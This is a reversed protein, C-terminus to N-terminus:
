QRMLKRFADDPEQKLKKRLGNRYIDFYRMASIRDNNLLLAEILLYNMERHLPEHTLGTKMWKIIKEHRCVAKYYGSIRLLLSIYMDKLMQRSREAWVYERGSFYEGKYLGAAEEYKWVSDENVILPSESLTHFKCYDCDLGSMDFRYSGRDHEIPLKVGHQLLAKKVYHLTTNFHILARDGEYDEWLCDIIKNRSVFRGEQDVLFAFLEEAKETRFKVEATGALVRLKGFCLVKLAAPQMPIAKEEIIRHLTEQLRAASVPKLLYDLANLHFAEVAYQNYATVFIVAIDEQLETIRSSLEIGDMDPMEVDLFIADVKNKKLFELVEISESFKGELQVLGSGKLLKELRDLSPQEDDLVIARIM